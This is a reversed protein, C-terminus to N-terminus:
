EGPRVFRAGTDAREGAGLTRVQAPQGATAALAARLDALPGLLSTGIAVREGGLEGKASVVSVIWPRGDVVQLVPAGSSGLDVSCAMVLVGAEEGLVDCADEVAPADARGAAYSVIAVRAGPAPRGATGLPAVQTRRIPRDLELLALDARSNAAGAEPAFRYGPHIAARRVGRAALPRGGRLGALFAVRSPEVIGRTDRDYLCHAATLVLSEGILTGTCFGKGDVDIRGVAEWGRADDATLPARLRDEQVLDQAPTAGAALAIALAVRLTRGLSLV